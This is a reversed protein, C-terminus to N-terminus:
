PWLYSCLDSFISFDHLYFANLCSSQPSTSNFAKLGVSRRPINQHQYM